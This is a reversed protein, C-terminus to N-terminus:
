APKVSLIPLSSPATSGGEPERTVLVTAGQVDGSLAVSGQGSRNVTFVGDPQPAGGARQIWAQYVRGRGPGPMDSVRLSAGGSGVVLEGSAGPARRQDVHALSTSASSGGRAAYGIAGGAVILLGALGAALAPRAQLGSLWSRWFPPREARAPAPEDGRGERAEARVIDMLRARLEPPPAVPTAALPLADAAVRLREVEERCSACVDLHASFRWAEEDDLAGLVWPGAVDRLEDHDTTM